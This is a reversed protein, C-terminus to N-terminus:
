PQMKGGPKTYYRKHERTIVRIKFEFPFDVVDLCFVAPCVTRIYGREEIVAPRDDARSLCAIGVDDPRIAKVLDHTLEHHLLVFLHDTVEHLSLQLGALGRLLHRLGSRLRGRRRCFFLRRGRGRCFGSWCCFFYFVCAFFAEVLDNEIKKGLLLLRPSLLLLVSSLLCFVSSCQIAAVLSCILVSSSLARRIRISIRFVSAPHPEPWVPPLREAVSM